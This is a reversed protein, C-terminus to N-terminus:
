VDSHCLALNCCLTSQITYVCDSIEKYITGWPSACLSLKSAIFDAPWACIAYIYSLVKHIVSESNTNYPQMETFIEDDEKGIEIIDSHEVM